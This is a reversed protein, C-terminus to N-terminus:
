QKPRSVTKFLLMRFVTSARVFFSGRARAQVTGRKVGQTRPYTKLTSMLKQQAPVYRVHENQNSLCRKLGRRTVTQKPAVFTERAFVTKSILRSQKIYNPRLRRQFFVSAEIIPASDRGEWFSSAFYFATHQGGDLYKVVNGPAM